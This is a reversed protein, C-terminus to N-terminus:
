RKNLAKNEWSKGTLVQNEVRIKVIVDSNYDDKITLLIKM